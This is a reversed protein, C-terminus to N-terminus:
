HNVYYQLNIYILYSSLLLTSEYNFLWHKLDTKFCLNIL